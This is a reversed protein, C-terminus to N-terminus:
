EFRSRQRIETEDQDEHLVISTKPSDQKVRVVIMSGTPLGDSYRTASDHDFFPKRYTGTLLRGQHRYTYTTEAVPGDAGSSTVTATEVAWAKTGRAKIMRTVIRILYAVVDGLLWM